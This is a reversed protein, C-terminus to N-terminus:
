TGEGPEDPARHSHATHGSSPARFGTTDGSTEHRGPAPAAEDVGGVSRLYDSLDGDPVPPATPEGPAPAAAEDPAAEGPHAASSDSEGPTPAPQREVRESNGSAKETTLFDSLPREAGRRSSGLVDALLFGVGVLSVVICAIALWLTGTVLGLVLLVFGVLTAALALTLM